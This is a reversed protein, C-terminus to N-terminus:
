KKKLAPWDAGNMNAVYLYDREIRWAEDFMQKWEVTPDVDIKLDSTSLRGKGASPPPGGADVVAWQGSPRGNPSAGQYLLKKRNFSITYESGASEVFDIAKRDDLDYRHLIDAHNPVRELYFWQGAAGAQLNVYDRSPVNLSIVRQMFGDFDIPVTVSDSTAPGGRGGARGAGARGSAEAAGRAGNGGGGSASDTPEDGSEPLLPSANAKSLVALYVGRQVPRQYSSMDLWGTNLAFDTSALFLMYKGSRDWTPSIADSLGDTLQHTAGTAVDYVFVAHFQSGELRKTYSIWKSDPSWSPYMDRDPWTYNGRDVHTQKGSALDVVWLNM